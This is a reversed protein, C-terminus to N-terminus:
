KTFKFTYLINELLISSKHLILSLSEGKEFTIIDVYAFPKDIDQGIPVHAYHVGKQGNIVITTSVSADKVNGPIGINIDFDSTIGHYNSCDEVQDKSSYFMVQIGNDCVLNEWSLPISVSYGYYEENRYTKWTSTDITSSSSLQNVQKQEEDGKQMLQSIVQRAQDVPNTSTSNALLPSKQITDLLYPGGGFLVVLVGVAIITGLLGLGGRNRYNM